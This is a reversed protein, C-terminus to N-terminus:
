DSSLSVCGTEGETGRYILGYVVSGAFEARGGGVYKGAPLVRATVRLIKKIEPEYEPLTFEESIDCFVADGFLDETFTRGESPVASQKEAM